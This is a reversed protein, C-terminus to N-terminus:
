AECTRRRCTLVPGRAGPSCTLMGTGLNGFKLRDANMVELIIEQLRIVLCKTVFIKPGPPASNPDNRQKSASPLVGHM